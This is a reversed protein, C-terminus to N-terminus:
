YRRGKFLQSLSKLLVECHLVQSKYRLEACSFNKKESFKTPHKLLSIFSNKMENYKLLLEPDYMIYIFCLSACTIALNTMYESMVDDMWGDEYCRACTHYIQCHRPKRKLDSKKSKSFIQLYYGPFVNL